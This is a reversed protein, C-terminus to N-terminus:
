SFHGRTEKPKASHDVDGHLVRTVIRERQALGAPDAIAEVLPVDELFWGVPRQYIQALKAILVASVRNHGVEYKRIQQGIVGVLKAAQRQRINATIRALRLRRGIERDILDSEHKM